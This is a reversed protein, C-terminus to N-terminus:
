RQLGKSNLTRPQAASAKAFAALLKSPSEAPLYFSWFVRTYSLQYLLPRWFRQSPTRTEGGTRRLKFSLKLFPKSILAPELRDRRLTKAYDPDRWGQM